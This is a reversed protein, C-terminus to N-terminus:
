VGSGDEVLDDTEASFDALSEGDVSELSIVTGGTMGALMLLDVIGAKMSESAARRKARLIKAAVPDKTRPASFRHLTRIETIEKGVLVGFRVPVLAEGAPNASVKGEEQHANYAALVAAGGAKRLSAARESDLTSLWNLANQASTANSVRAM